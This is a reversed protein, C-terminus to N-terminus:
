DCWRAAATQRRKIQVQGFFVAVCCNVVYVFSQMFM